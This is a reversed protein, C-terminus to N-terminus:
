FVGFILNLDRLNRHGECKNEELLYNLKDKLIEENNILNRSIAFKGKLLGQCGEPMYKKWYKRLQNCHNNKGLHSNKGKAMSAWLKPNIEAVIHAHLFNGEGGCELCYKWKTYRKQNGISENLYDNIVKCFNKEMLKDTLKDRGYQGKWNPSINIMISSHFPEVGMIRAVSKYESKEIQISPRHVYMLRAMENNEFFEYAEHQPRSCRFERDEHIIADYVPRALVLLNEFDKVYKPIMQYDKYKLQVFKGCDLISFTNKM